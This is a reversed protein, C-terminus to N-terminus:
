WILMPLPSHFSRRSPLQEVPAEGRGDALVAVPDLTAPLLVLSVAPLSVEIQDVVPHAPCGPDRPQTISRPGQWREIGYTTGCKVYGLASLRTASRCRLGTSVAATQSETM